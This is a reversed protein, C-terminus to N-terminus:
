GTKEKAWIVRCKESGYFRESKVTTYKCENARREALYAQLM